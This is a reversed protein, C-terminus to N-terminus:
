LSLANILFSYWLANLEKWWCFDMHTTELDYSFEQANYDLYFTNALPIFNVDVSNYYLNVVLTLEGTLHAALLQAKFQNTTIYVFPSAQAPAM